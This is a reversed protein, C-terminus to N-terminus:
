VCVQLEFPPAELVRAVTLLTHSWLARIADPFGDGSRHAVKGLVNVAPLFCDPVALLAVVLSLIDGTFMYDCNCWEALAFTATLIPRFLISRHIIANASAGVGDCFVFPSSLSLCVFFFLGALAAQVLCGAAAPSTGATAAAGALAPGYTRLTHGLLPFLQPLCAVLGQQLEARRREPLM